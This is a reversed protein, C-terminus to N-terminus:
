QKRRRAAIAALAMGALAMTTVGAEPVATVTGVFAGVSPSAYNFTLTYDGAALGTFSFSGSNPAAATLSGLTISTMTLSGLSFLSGTLSGPASLEFDYSSTGSGFFAGGAVVAGSPDTGLDGSLAPLAQASGAAAILAAAALHRLKM